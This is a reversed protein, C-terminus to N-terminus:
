FGVLVVTCLDRQPNRYHVTSQIRAPRLLALAAELIAQDPDNADTARSVVPEFDQADLTETIGGLSPASADLILLRNEPGEEDWAAALHSPLSRLALSVGALGPLAEGLAVRLGDEGAEVVALLLAPPLPLGHLADLGPLLLDLVLLSPTESRLVRRCAEGGSAGLLTFDDPNLGRELLRQLDADASAVLITQPGPWEPLTAALRRRLERLLIPQAPRAQADLPLAFSFTSGVEPESEAWIHGGHHEVIERCVALGLGAGAPRDTLSTESQFFKEFLRPLSEAPIGRGTDSVSVLLYDGPLLLVPVDPAEGEDVRLTGASVRVEGRDTFKVANSLLNTVAQALRARDGRALPLDPPLSLRISLGKDEAQSEIVSLAVHIADVLNVDGMHWELRGAEMDALDLLDSVMQELQQGSEDIRRLQDAIRVVARHVKSDEAPIHPVLRDHLTKEALAAFGVISALPTRFEHSIATLVAEKVREAARRRSVDRLTTMVGVVTGGEGEMASANAQICRGDGLLIEGRAPEPATELAQGIIPGIGPALDAPLPKGLLTAAPRGLMQELAHNILMVQGYPDTFLFGDSLHELVAALVQQSDLGQQCQENMAGTSSASGQGVGTM